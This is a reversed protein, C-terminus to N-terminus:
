FPIDDLLEYPFKDLLEPGLAEIVEHYIDSPIELFPKRKGTKLPTNIYNKETPTFHEWM